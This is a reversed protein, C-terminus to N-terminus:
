GSARLRRDVALARITAMPPAYGPRGTFQVQVVYGDATVTRVYGASQGPGQYTGETPGPAGRSPRFVMVLVTVDHARANVQRFYLRRPRVQVVSFQSQPVTNPLYRSIAALVGAPVSPVTTCTITDPCHAPDDREFQQRGQTVPVASPEITASRPPRDPQPVARHTDRHGSAIRVGALAALLAAALIGVAWRRGPTALWPPRRPEALEEERGSEDLDWEVRGPEVSV